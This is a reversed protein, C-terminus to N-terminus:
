PNHSTKPTLRKPDHLFLRFPQCLDLPDTFFLRSFNCRLNRLLSVHSFCLHKLLFIPNRQIESGFDILFIYFCDVTYKLFIRVPKCIIDTTNTELNRVLDSVPNSDM